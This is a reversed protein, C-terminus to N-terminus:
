KQPKSISRKRSRWTAETTWSLLLSNFRRFNSSTLDRLSSTSQLLLLFMAVFLVLLVFRLMEIDKRLQNKERRDLNERVINARIERVLAAELDALSRDGASRTRNDDKQDSMTKTVTQTEATATSRLCESSLSELAKQHDNKMMDMQNLTSKLVSKVEVLDSELDHLAKKSAKFSM